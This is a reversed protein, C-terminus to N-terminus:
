TRTKLSDFVLTITVEFLYRVHQHKVQVFSLDGTHSNYFLTKIKFQQKM